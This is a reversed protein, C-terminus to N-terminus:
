LRGTKTNWTDQNENWWRKFAAADQSPLMGKRWLDWYVVDPLLGVQHFDGKWKGWSPQNNRAAKAQEYIAQVNQEDYVSVTDDAGDHHMMTRTGTVPDDDLIRTWSM